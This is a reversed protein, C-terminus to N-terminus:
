GHATALICMRKAQLTCVSATITLPAHPELFPHTSCVGACCECDLTALLPAQSGLMLPRYMVPTSGLGSSEDAAAACACCLGEVDIDGLALLGATCSRYGVLLVWMSLVCPPLDTCASAHQQESDQRDQPSENFSGALQDPQRGWGVGVADRGWGCM